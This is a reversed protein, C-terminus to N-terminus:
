VSPPQQSRATLTTVEARRCPGDESLHAQRLAPDLAVMALALAALMLVYFGASKVKDGRRPRPFVQRQSGAARAIQQGNM